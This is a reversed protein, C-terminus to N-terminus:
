IPEMERITGSHNKITKKRVRKWQSSNRRTARRLVGLLRDTRLQRADISERLTATCAEAVIWRTEAGSRGATRGALEAVDVAHRAPNGCRTRTTCRLCYTAQRGVTKKALPAVVRSSSAAERRGGPPAHTPLLCLRNTCCCIQVVSPLLLQRSPIARTQSPKM